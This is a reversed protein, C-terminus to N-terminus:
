WFWNGPSQKKLRVTSINIVEPIILIFALTHLWMGGLASLVANEGPGEMGGGEGLWDMTNTPALLEDKSVCTEKFTLKDM